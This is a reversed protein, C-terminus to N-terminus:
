TNHTIIYDGIVACLRAARVVAAKWTSTHQSYARPISCLGTDHSLRSSRRICPLPMCDISQALEAGRQLLGDLSLQMARSATASM